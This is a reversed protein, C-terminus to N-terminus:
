SCRASPPASGTLRPATRRRAPYDLVHKLGKVAKGALEEDVREDAIHKVGLQLDGLQHRLFLSLLMADAVTLSM